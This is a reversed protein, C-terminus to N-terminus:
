EPEKRSAKPSLGEALVQWFEMFILGPVNWVFSVLQSVAKRRYISRRIRFVLDDSAEDEFAALSEIPEGAEIEEGNGPAFEPPDTM